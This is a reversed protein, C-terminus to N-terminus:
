GDRADFAANADLSAALNGEAWAKMARLPALASRGADTLAYEVRLPMEDYLTRTLLGDRELRRLTQTLMKQSVGELRRRLAGFRLPGDALAVLALVAWKEGLRALLGRSPCAALFADPKTM